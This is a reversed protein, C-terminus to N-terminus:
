IMSQFYCCRKKFIVLIALISGDNIIMFRVTKKVLFFLLIKDYNWHTDYFFKLGNMEFVLGGKTWGEKWDGGEKSWNESPRLGVFKSHWSGRSLDWDKQFYVISCSFRVAECEILNKERKPYRLNFIIWNKNKKSKENKM